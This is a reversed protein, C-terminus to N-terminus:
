KVNSIVKPFALVIEKTLESAVHITDQRIIRHCPFRGAKM